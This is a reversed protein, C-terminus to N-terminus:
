AVFRAFREDLREKDPWDNERVPLHLRRGHMGKLGYELMPGDSETLLAPNIVVLYDPSIGLFQSDYAAHHIKCLAIGNKISVINEVDADPVIHAADLLERYRLTCVACKTQYASMVMERFKDQHLRALSRSEAYRKEFEPLDGRGTAFRLDDDFSLLVHRESPRDHVIMPFHAYFPGAKSVQEFYVVPSRHAAAARLKVNDGNEAAQYDYRILGETIQLDRYDNRRRDASTM